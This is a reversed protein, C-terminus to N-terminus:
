HILYSLQGLQCMHSRQPTKLFSSECLKFSEHVQLPKCFSKSVASTTHEPVQETFRSIKKWKSCIKFVYLHSWHKENKLTGAHRLIKTTSYKEWKHTSKTKNTLSLTLMFDFIWTKIAYLPIKFKDMCM